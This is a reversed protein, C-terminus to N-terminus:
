DPGARDTHDVQIDNTVGRVGTLDAVLLEAAARESASGATGTLTVEGGTSQVTIDSADTDPDFTLDDEVAARIDDTEDM